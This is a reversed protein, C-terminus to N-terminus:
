KCNKTLLSKEFNKERYKKYFIHSKRPFMKLLFDTVELSEELSKKSKLSYVM